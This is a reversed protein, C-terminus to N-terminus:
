AVMTTPTFFSPRLYTFASPVKLYSTPHHMIICSLVSLRILTTTSHPPLIGSAHMMMCSLASRCIPPIDWAFNGMHPTASLCIPPDDWASDAMHPTASSHTIFTQSPAYN